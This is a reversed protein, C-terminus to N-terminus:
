QWDDGDDATRVDALAGQEVAYDAAAGGDHLVAGARGAVADVAVALPVAAAEDDHVRAAELDMGAIGDLLSDLLLGSQGDGLRVDDDEHGVRDDSHGGRVVFGRVDKSRGLSRDEDGGVLGVVVLELQFGGLEVGQAPLLRIRDARGVAAADRIQEIRDDPRQRRLALGFDDSLAALLFGVLPSRVHGGAPQLPDLFAVLFRDLVGGDLGFGAQGSLEFFLVLVDRNGQDPSRIDALRAKQVRQEAFFSGDDAVDGSGGSVRDVGVELPTPRLDDEDIRGADLARALNRSSRVRVAVRGNSGDLRDIPGVHGDKEDVREFAQRRLVRVDGSEDRLLPSPEDDGEVLPIEEGLLRIPGEVLVHGLHPALHRKRSKAGTTEILAM